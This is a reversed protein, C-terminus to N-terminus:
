RRACVLQWIVPLLKVFIHDNFIPVCNHFFNRLNQRIKLSIIQKTFRMEFKESSPIVLQKLTTM